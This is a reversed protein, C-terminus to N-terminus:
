YFTNRASICQNIQHLSPPFSVNSNQHFEQQRPRRHRQRVWKVYQRRRGRLDRTSTVCSDWPLEKPLSTELLCTWLSERFHIDAGEILPFAGWPLNLFEKLNQRFRKGTLLRHELRQLSKWKSKLQFCSLFRNMERCPLSTSRIASLYM